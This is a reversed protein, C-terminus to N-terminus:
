ITTSTDTMTLWASHETPSFSDARQRDTQRDTQSTHTPLLRQTWHAVVSWQGAQRLIIWTQKFVEFLQKSLDSIWGDVRETLLDDHREYTGNDDRHRHRERDRGTQRDTQRDTVLGGMSGNRSFITMDRTHAMTMETHAEGEREGDTQRDTQRDVQLRSLPNYNPPWSLPLGVM